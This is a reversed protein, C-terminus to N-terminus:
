HDDVHNTGQAHVKMLNILFQSTLDEIEGIAGGMQEQGIKSGKAILGPMNQLLAQGAPTKYFTVIDVIEQKSFTEDYLAVYKPKMKDWSMRDTVLKFIQDEFHRLEPLYKAM